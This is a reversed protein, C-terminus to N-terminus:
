KPSPSTQFGCQSGFTSSHPGAISVPCAHRDIVKGYADPSRDKVYADVEEPTPPLGILGFTVRRILQEKTAPAAPKLNCAELSAGIFQDIPNRSWSKQRVAPLEIRPVAQFAWHSPLNTEGFGPLIFAFLVATGAVCTARVHAKLPPVASM